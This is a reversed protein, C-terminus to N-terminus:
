ILKELQEVFDKPEEILLKIVTNLKSEESTKRRENLILWYSYANLLYLHTQKARLAQTRWKDYDFTNTHRSSGTKLELERIQIQLEIDQITYQLSSIKARCEAEGRPEDNDTYIWSPLNEVIYESRWLLPKTPSDSFSM